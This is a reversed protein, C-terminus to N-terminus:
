FFFWYQFSRALMKRTGTSFDTALSVRVSVCMGSTLWCFHYIWVIWYKGLSQPPLVTSAKVSNMKRQNSATPPCLLFTCFCDFLFPSFFGIGGRGWRDGCASLTNSFFIERGQKRGREGCVTPNGQKLFYLFSFLHQRASFHRNIDVPGFLALSTQEAYDYGFTISSSNAKNGLAGQGLIFEKQSFAATKWWGKYHICCFKM